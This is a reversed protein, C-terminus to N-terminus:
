PEEPIFRSTSYVRYERLRGKEKLRESPQEATRAAGVVKEHRRGPPTKPRAAGGAPGRRTGGAKGGPENGLRGVAMQAINVKYRGFTDGIAGVIGPVDSHHFVLLNGDLYAEMRHEGLRILRPMNNGFVTGDARYTEDACEIEM